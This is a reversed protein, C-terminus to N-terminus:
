PHSQYEFTSIPVNPRILPMSKQNQDRPGVRTPCPRRTSCPAPYMGAMRYPPMRRRYRLLPGTRMGPRRARPPLPLCVAVRKCQTAGAGTCATHCTHWPLRPRPYVAVTCSTHAAIQFARRPGACNAAGCHMQRANWKCTHYPSTPRSVASTHPLVPHLRCPLPNCWTPQSIWGCVCARERESGGGRTPAVMPSSDCMAFRAMM